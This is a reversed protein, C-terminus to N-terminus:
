DEPGKFSWWLGIIMQTNVSLITVNLPYIKNLYKNKYSWSFDTKLPKIDTQIQVESHATKGESLQECVQQQHNIFIM